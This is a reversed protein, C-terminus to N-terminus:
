RIAHPTLIFRSIRFAFPAFIECFIESFVCFLIQFFDLSTKQSKQSVEAGEANLCHKEESM